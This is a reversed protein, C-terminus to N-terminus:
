KGKKLSPYGDVVVKVSAFGERFSQKNKPNKFPIEKKEYGARYGQGSYYARKQGASYKGKAM